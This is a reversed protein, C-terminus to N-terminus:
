PLLQLVEELLNKSLFDLEILNLQCKEGINPIVPNNKM